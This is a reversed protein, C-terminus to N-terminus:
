LLLLEKYINIISRKFTSDPFDKVKQHIAVIEEVAKERLGINNYCYARIALTEMGCAIDLPYILYPPVFHNELVEIVKQEDHQKWYSYALEQTFITSITYPEFKTSEEIFQIIEETISKEENLRNEIYFYIYQYFGFEYINETFQAYTKFKKLLDWAKDSDELQVYIFCGLQLLRAHKKYLSYKHAITLGQEVSQAATAYDGTASEILGKLYYFDLLVSTELLYDHEEVFAILPQFTQKSLTFQQNDFQTRILFIKAQVFKNTNGIEEYFTIVNSFLDFPLENGLFYTCMCYMEILRVEEYHQFSLNELM